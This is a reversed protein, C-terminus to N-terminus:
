MIEMSRHQVRGLIDMDRKVPSGLVPHLERAAAEATSLLPFPDTGKNQHFFGLTANAENKALAYSNTHIVKLSKKKKEFPM